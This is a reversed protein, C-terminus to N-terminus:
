PRYDKIPTIGDHRGKAEPPTVNVWTHGGDTTSLLQSCGTMGMACPSSSVLVWGHSPSVFSLDDVPSGIVLRNELFTPQITAHADARIIQPTLDKGLTVVILSLTQGSAQMTLWSQDIVVSPVRQDTTFQEDLAFLKALKWLNGGDDTSFLAMKSNTEPGSFMMPLFGHQHDVFRPLGYTPADAAGVDAPTKLPVRQWTLGRDHTAYLGDEIGNQSAIWGDSASSFRIRGSPCNGSLRSWTRGGDETRLLICASSNVASLMMWGHISDVFQIQGYSTLDYFAPVPPKFPRVSWTAGTDTTSALDFQVKGKEYNFESLLAWGIAGDLFFVSAIGKEDQSAPTIDRWQAGGDSTWFLRHESATWGAEASMLTM